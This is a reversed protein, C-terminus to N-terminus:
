KGGYHGALRWAREVVEFGEGGPGGIVGVVRRCGDLGDISFEAACQAQIEIKAVHDAVGRRPALQWEVQRRVVFQREPYAAIRWHVCQLELQDVRAALVHPPDITGFEDERVLPLLD